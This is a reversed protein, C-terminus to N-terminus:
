KSEKNKITFIDEITLILNDYQVIEECNLINHAEEKNMEFLLIAVRGLNSTIHIREDNLIKDPIKDKVVIQFKHINRNDELNIDDEKKDKDIYVIRSTLKQLYELKHSSIIIIKDEEELILKTLKKTNIIDIGDYPEDILLVKANVAKALIIALLVLEGKSLTSLLTDKDIFLGIDDKLRFFKEVDFKDYTNKYIDIVKKLKFNVFYDFRDPVYIIDNLLGSNDRTNEGNLYIEGSNPEYIGIISKFLTTKGSGNRGVVGIIQPENCILNFDSLIDNDAISLSLDYIEFKM